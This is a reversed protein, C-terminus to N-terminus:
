AVPKCAKRPSAPRSFSEGGRWSKRQGKEAKRMTVEQQAEGVGELVLEEGEGGTVVMKGGAVAGNTASRERVKAEESESGRGGGGSSTDAGARRTLSTGM